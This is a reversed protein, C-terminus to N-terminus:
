LKKVFQVKLKILHLWVFAGLFLLPLRTDQRTTIFCGFVFFVLKKKQKYAASRRLTMNLLKLSLGPYLMALPLFFVNIIEERFCM